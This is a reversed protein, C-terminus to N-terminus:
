GGSDATEREPFATPSQVVQKHCAYCAADSYLSQPAKYCLEKQFVRDMLSTIVVAVRDVGLM